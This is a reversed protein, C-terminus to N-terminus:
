FYMGALIYVVLVYEAAEEWSRTFFAESRKLSEYVPRIPSPEPGHHSALLAVLLASAIFLDPRPVSERM